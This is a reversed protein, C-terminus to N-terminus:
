AEVTQWGDPAASLPGDYLVRSVGGSGKWPGLTVRVMDVKGKAYPTVTVAGSWGAAVVSADRYARRTVTESNAKGGNMTMYFRSM